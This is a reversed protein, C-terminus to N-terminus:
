RISELPINREPKIQAALEEASYFSVAKNTALYSTLQLAQKLNDQETLNYDHTAIMGIVKRNTDLYSNMIRVFDEPYDTNPCGMVTQICQLHQGAAQIQFPEGFRIKNRNLFDKAWPNDAWHMRTFSFDLHFGHSFQQQIVTPNIFWWGAAYFPKCLRRTELWGYDADFQLRILPDDTETYNRHRIHSSIEDFGKQTRWFHGHYGVDSVESLDKLRQTFQEESFNSENLESALRANVPCMVVCLPKKGTLARFKECFTILKEFVEDRYIQETHFIFGFSFTYGPKFRPPFWSYLARKLSNKM